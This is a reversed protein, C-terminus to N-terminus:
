SHLPDKLHILDNCSSNQKCFVTCGPSIRSLGFDELAIDLVLLLKQVNELNIEFLRIM